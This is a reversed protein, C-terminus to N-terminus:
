RSEVGADEQQQRNGKRRTNQMPSRCRLWMQKNRARKGGEGHPHPPEVGEEGREPPHPHPRMGLAAVTLLELEDGERGRDRQRQDDSMMDSNNHDHQMAIQFVMLEQQGAKNNRFMCISACNSKCQYIVYQPSKAQCPPSHVDQVLVHLRALVLVHVDEPGDEDVRVAM